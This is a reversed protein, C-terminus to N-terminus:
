RLARLAKALEANESRFKPDALEITQAILRATINRDPFTPQAQVASALRRVGMWLTIDSRYEKAVCSLFVLRKEVLEEIPAKVALRRLEDLDADGSPELDPEAAPADSSASAVGLSYGCAGGFAAGLAFTSGAVLFARRTPMSPPAPKPAVVYVPDLRM